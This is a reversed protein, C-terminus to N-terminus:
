KVKEQPTPKASLTKILPKDFLMKRIVPGDAQKKIPVEQKKSLFNYGLPESIRQADAFAQRYYKSSALLCPTEM